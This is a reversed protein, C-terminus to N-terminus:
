GLSEFIPKVDSWFTDLAILRPKLFSIIEPWEETKFVSFGKLEKKIQSITIGQNSSVPLWEWEEGLETHLIKKFSEFQEYYIQRIIEDPHTIDISISCKFQEANTRFYINKVGTKYNVWNVPMEEASPIPKMYKGFTIWFQQKLRAAEDKGYM